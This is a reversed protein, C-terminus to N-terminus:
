SEWTDIFKIGKVCWPGFTEIAFPIITSNEELLKKYKNLKIKAAKNAVKGSSISSLYLYKLM